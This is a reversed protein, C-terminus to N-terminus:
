QSKELVAAKDLDTAMTYALGSISLTDMVESTMPYEYEKYYDGVIQFSANKTSEAESVKVRL